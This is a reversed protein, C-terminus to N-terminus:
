IHILSLGGDGGHLDVREGEEREVGGRGRCGGEEALDIIEAAEAEVLAAADALKHSEECLHAAYRGMEQAMRVM